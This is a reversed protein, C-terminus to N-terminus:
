AVKNHKTLNEKATVVRLNCPAHLGCVFKSKLPVIHDVHHWQGTLMSLGHATIYFENIKEKDAWAPTASLELARRNARHFAVRHRNNRKWEAKNRAREEKNDAYDARSRAILEDKNAQYRLAARQKIEEKNAEYFKKSVEARREKHRASYEADYLAKRLKKLEDKEIM